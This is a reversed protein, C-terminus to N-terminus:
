ELLLRQRLVRDSTYDSNDYTLNKHDTFVHVEHGFVMTKFQKLTEVIGLLEKETTTYKKHATNLKKSFFAIPRGQQSVVGGMQYDSADTHIDFKKEYDPYALMTDESVITKIKEFAKNMEPTWAFKVGRGTKETLPKMIEARRKYMEKYYNIM